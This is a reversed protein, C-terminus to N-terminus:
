KRDICRQNEVKEMIKSINFIEKGKETNFFVYLCIASCMFALIWFASNLKKREKGM